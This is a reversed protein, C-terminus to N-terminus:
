TRHTDSPTASVRSVRGEYRLNKIADMLEKPPPDSREPTKVMMMFRM